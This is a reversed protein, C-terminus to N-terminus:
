SVEELSSVISAQMHTLLM